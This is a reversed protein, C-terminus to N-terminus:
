RKSRVSSVIQPTTVQMILSRRRLALNASGTRLRAASPAISPETAIAAHPRVSSTILRCDFPWPTSRLEVEGEIEVPINFPLEALHTHDTLEISRHDRETITTPLM